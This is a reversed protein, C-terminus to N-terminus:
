LRLFPHYLFSLSTVYVDPFFSFHPHFRSLSLLCSSLWFFSAFVCLFLNFVPPLTIFYPSNLMLLPLIHVFALYPYLVFLYIFLLLFCECFFFTSFPLFLVLTLQILCLFLFVTFLLSILIVLLFVGLRFFRFYFPNCVPPLTINPRSAFM